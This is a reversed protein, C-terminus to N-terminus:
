KTRKKIIPALDRVPTPSDGGHERQLELEYAVLDSRYYRRQYYVPKDGVTRSLREVLLLARGRPVELIEAIDPKANVSEIRYRGSLVPIDFEDELIAYITREGLDHDELLHGYLIPLWTRDFAVPQGDGLRLRELCVVSKGAQIGLADSVVAPALVTELNLTRSAAKLGAAAMDEVFDSLFVLGQRLPRSHVFSGLGQKRYILGESELTHLARRVTIRSVGFQRGLEAESPLQDDPSLMGSDIQERLWTSIQQHRPEGTRLM